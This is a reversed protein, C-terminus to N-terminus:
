KKKKNPKPAPKKESKTTTTKATTKPKSIIDSLSYVKEVNGEVVFKGSNLAKDASLKGECFSIFDAASSAVKCDNDRYDYPEVCVEGGEVKIYFAGGGEGVIDVQIAFSGDFDKVSHSTIEKKTTEFIQEYTM